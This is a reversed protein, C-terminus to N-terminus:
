HTRAMQVSVKAVVLVNPEPKHSSYRNVVILRYRADNQPKERSRRSWIWEERHIEIVSGSCRKKAEPKCHRAHQSM